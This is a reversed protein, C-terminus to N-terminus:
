KKEGLLDSKCQYHFFGCLMLLLLSFVGLIVPTIGCLSFSFRSALFCLSHFDSILYVGAIQFVLIM